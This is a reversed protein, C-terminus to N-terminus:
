PRTTAPTACCGGLSRANGADRKAFFLGTHLAARTTECKAMNYFQTFRLGDEALRDLHLTRIESGYPGIDSYGVDDAMILVVNPPQSPSQGAAPAARGFAASAALLALFVRASIVRMSGAVEPQGGGRDSLRRAGAPHRQRHGGVGGRAPDPHHVGRVRHGAVPGVRAARGGDVHGMATGVIRGRGYRVTHVMPEDDGTGHTRVGWHAERAPDSWATALITMNTAPGRQNSYLEDTGHLWVRPLGRMIPHDPERTVVPYEHPDVCEGAHGPTHDLFLRGEHYKVYPGHREDRGGWAGIGIMENFEPWDAFTHNVAHGYVLGGGNLM